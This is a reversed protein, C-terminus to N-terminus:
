GVNAATVPLDKHSEPQTANKPNSRVAGKRTMMRHRRNSRLFDRRPLYISPLHM